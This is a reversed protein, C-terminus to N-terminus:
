WRRNDYSEGIMARLQRVWTDIRDAGFDGARIAITRWGHARLWARRAADYAASQPGHAAAGDYEICIRLREYAFDLRFRGNGVWVQPTPPPLGADHLALWLWAERPSELRPEILPLLQRLQVVGRRGAFRPLERDFALRGSPVLRALDNLAAYAERRRLRCGLDLGTRMPTTVLVGALEQLDRRVLDREGSDLGTRRTRQDGRVACVEVPPLVDHEGWTLADVGHLWAATRDVVIQRPGLVRACAAARLELSDPVSSDVYAGRLIRRLEGRELLTRIHRPRLGRQRLEAPTLIEIDM